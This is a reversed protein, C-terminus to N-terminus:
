LLEWKGLIAPDVGVRRCSRAAIGDRLAARIAPASLRLSQAALRDAVLRARKRRMLERAWVPLLAAGAGIFVSRAFGGAPIPLSAKDMVELVAVSRDSFELAPQIDRFYADVQAVSRPVERAGLAEAVRATEDFYRDQIEIPLSVSRYWQYGRLFSWMETVHVWTLLAPQQASYHSGDPASGKVTRHIAMVRAILAEAEAKPAYTTGAVFATTRRLRGIMDKRFDSHDWVGALALPHLTQLMLAAIGGAMMGPFDCHVRWTVSDPGFLGVDGKPEDYRVGQGHALANNVWRRIQQHVAGKLLPARKDATETV